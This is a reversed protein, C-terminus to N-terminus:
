PRLAFAEVRRGAAALVEGPALALPDFHVAGSLDAAQLPRGDAASLVRLQSTAVSVSFVAGGGVVPPGADWGMSRWLVKFGGPSARLAVLGDACPVYVLGGAYADAGYAGGPCVAGSALPHGIGGLDTAGLLYGVGAKGVQFVLGGPLPLPSTSGLDLDSQNLYPFDAPTFSDLLKLDPSLRLVSDGGDWAKDSASNGTAAYLSGDQGVSLGATAWIAGERATPVRYASVAGGPRVAVVQGVYAGCDGYLGGLPVYVTGNLYTLAGRQQQAAAHTGALDLNWSGLVRGTAPDLAFLRQATPQVEAAVYLRGGGLVPTGTIGLPDIDGCPLDRLPVPTGVHSRWLVRGSRLDLAYVTDNETAVYATEGQWVPQAYVLGDLAPTRWLRAVRGTAPEPYSAGRSNTGGYTPWSAAAAVRRVSAGAAIRRDAAVATRSGGGRPAAAAGCGAALSGLALSALAAVIWRRPM